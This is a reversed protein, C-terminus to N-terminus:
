ETVDFGTCPLSFERQYYQKREKAPLTELLALEAQDLLSVMVARQTVGSVSALRHLETKAKASLPINLRALNGGVAKFHRERYAAEREANTKGM